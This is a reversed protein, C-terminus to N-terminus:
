RHPIEPFSNVLFQIACDSFAYPSEKYMPLDICECVKEYSLVASIEDENRALTKVAYVRLNNGLIIIRPLYKECRHAYIVNEYLPVDCHPMYFMTVADPESDASCEELNTCEEVDIGKSVVWM